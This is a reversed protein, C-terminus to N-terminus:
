ANLNDQSSLRRMAERLADAKMSSIDMRTGKLVRSLTVPIIGAENALKAASMNHDRLFAVVENVIPPRNM